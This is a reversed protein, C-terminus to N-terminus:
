ENNVHLLLNPTNGPVQTLVDKLADAKLKAAIETPTLTPEQELYLAVAGAVLPASM